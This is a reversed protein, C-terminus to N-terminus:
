SLRYGVVVPIGGPLLRPPPTVTVALQLVAPADELPRAQVAVQQEDPAMGAITMWDRVHALVFAVLKEQPLGVVHPKLDLM